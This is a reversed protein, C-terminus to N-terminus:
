AKCREEIFLVLAKNMAMLKGASFYFCYGLVM